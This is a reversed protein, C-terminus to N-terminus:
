ILYGIVAYSLASLGMPSALYLDVLFGSAFGMIAGDTPGGHWGSAVAAGLMIEPMVGFFRISAFLELQLILLIILVAVAKVTRLFTM